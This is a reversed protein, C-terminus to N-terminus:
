ISADSRGRSCCLGLLSAAPATTVQTARRMSLRPCSATASALGSSSRSSMPLSPLTLVRAIVSWITSHRMAAAALSSMSSSASPKTSVRPLEDRFALAAASASRSPNARRPLSGSTSRATAWATGASMGFSMSQQWSVSELIESAALEASSETVSVISWLSVCFSRLSRSDAMRKASLCVCSHRSARDSIVNTLASSAGERERITGTSARPKRSVTRGSM